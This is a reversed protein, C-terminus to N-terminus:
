RTLRKNAHMKTTQRSQLIIKVTFNEQDVTLLLIQVCPILFMLWWTDIYCITKRGVSVQLSYVRNTHGQLTHLCSGDEPDWVKVLYDYAGSVVHKGDYQVSSLSLNIIYM